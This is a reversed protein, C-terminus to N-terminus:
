NGGSIKGVRAGIGHIIFRTKAQYSTLIFRREDQPRIMGDYDIVGGRTECQLSKPYPADRSRNGNGDM